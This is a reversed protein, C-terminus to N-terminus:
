SNVLEFEYHCPKAAHVRVPHEDNAKLLDLLMGVSANPHIPAVDSEDCEACDHADIPEIHVLELAGDAMKVFLNAPMDVLALQAFVVRMPEHELAALIKFAGDAAPTLGDRVEPDNRLLQAVENIVAIREPNVELPLSGSLANPRPRAGDSRAM